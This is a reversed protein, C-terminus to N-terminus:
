DSIAKWDPDFDNAGHYHGGWVSPVRRHQVLSPVHYYIPQALRAALRSIKIDQMGPIEWWHSVCYSVLFRSLVFAQAGYITEPDPVFWHEDACQHRVGINPNYLGALALDGRRLPAWTELNHQLHLNFELDDELFLLYDFALEDAQLLALLATHEAREQRRDFAFNGMVVQVQTCDWDTLALFKLTEARVADREACSVMVAAFEM